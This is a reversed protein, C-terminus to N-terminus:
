ILFVIILVLFSVISYNLKISDNSEDIISETDEIVSPSETDEFISPSETDEFISPSETENFTFETDNGTPM